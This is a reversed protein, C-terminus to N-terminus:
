KPEFKYSKFAGDLIVHFHTLSGRLWLGDHVRVMNLRFAESLSRRGRRVYWLHTVSCPLVSLPRATSPYRRFLSPRGANLEM